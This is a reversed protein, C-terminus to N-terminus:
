SPRLSSPIGCLSAPSTESSAALVSLNSDRLSVFGNSTKTLTLVHFRATAVPCSVIFGPHSAAQQGEPEEELVSQMTDLRWRVRRGGGM